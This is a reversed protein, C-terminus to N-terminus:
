EGDADRSVVARFYPPAVIYYHNVVHHHHIDGSVAGIHVNCGSIAAINTTHRTNVNVDRGAAHGRLSIVNGM